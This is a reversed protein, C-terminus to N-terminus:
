RIQYSSFSRHYLDVIRGPGVKAVPRLDLPHSNRDNADVGLATSSNEWCISAVRLGQKAM